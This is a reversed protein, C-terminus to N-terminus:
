LEFHDNIFSICVDSLDQKICYLGAFLASHKLIWVNNELQCLICCTYARSFALDLALYLWVGDASCMCVINRWLLLRQGRRVERM